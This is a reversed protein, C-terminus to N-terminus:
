VSQIDLIHRVIMDVLNLSQPFGSTTLRQSLLNCFPYVTLRLKLCLYNCFSVCSKLYVKLEYLYQNPTQVTLLLLLLFLTITKVFCPCKLFGEIDKILKVFYPFKRFLNNITNNIKTNYLTENRQRDCSTVHLERYSRIIRRNKKEM